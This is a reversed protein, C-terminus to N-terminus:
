DIIKDDALPDTNELEERTMKSRAKPADNEPDDGTVIGFTSTLIYKIAGTIAKYLAKDGKDQGAGYFTGKLQEGTDVDTFIYKVGVVTIYDVGKAQTHQNEVIRTLNINFLVNHKKLLPYIAEKIAQESAYAYGHFDNKKDKAIFDIESM